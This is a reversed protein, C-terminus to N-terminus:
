RLLEIDAQYQFELSLLQTIAEHWEPWHWTWRWIKLLTLLRRCRWRRLRCDWSKYWWANHTLLFAVWTYMLICRYAHVGVDPACVETFITANLNDWSALWFYRVMIWAWSFSERSLCDQLINYPYLWHKVELLGSHRMLIPWNSMSIRSILLYRWSSSQKGPFNLGFLLFISSARKCRKVAKQEGPLPHNPPCTGTSQFASLHRLPIKCINVLWNLQIAFRYRM